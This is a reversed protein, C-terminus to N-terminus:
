RLFKAANHHIFLLKEGSRPLLRNRKEEFVNGYESFMRESFVSSSPTCLLKRSLERLLPLDSTGKWWEIPDTKRPALPCSLFREVERAAEALGGGSQESRRRKPPPEARDQDAIEDFCEYFLDAEAVETQHPSSNSSSSSSSVDGVKKSGSDHRQKALLEGLLLAKANEQDETKKFFRTKYRPDIATATVYHKQKMVNLNKTGPSKHLFRNRLSELLAKRTKQVGSDQGTKSLFLELTAISPIVSSLGSAEASMEKTLDFFPKLLTLFRESLQWEAASITPLESHNSLYILIPRKLAVIREVMLYSSNWRTPVDQVLLRPVMGQEQQLRKLDDRASSSHNFHTALRRCKTLLDTVSNQAFVADHVVLQLRHVTCHIAPINAMQCGRNMNAAGDRVLLHRRSEGLEWDTWMKDFMAAINDGTHSGPFHAAALVASQRKFSTKIWHGSLSIFAESSSSCTWIDSTFSVFDGEPAALEDLVTSRLDGYVESLMTESFYKRSPILYRPQLHAMLKVFGDDEVISFPQNELAMMTMIAKHIGKSRSDNIDWIKKSAFSEELSLQKKMESLKKEKPETASTSPQPQRAADKAEQYEKPHKVKAHNHLPSTSFTKQNGAGRKIAKHCILCEAVPDSPDKVSFLTWVFSACSDAMLDLRYRVSSFQILCASSGKISIVLGSRQWM